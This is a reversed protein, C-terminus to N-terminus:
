RGDETGNLLYTPFKYYTYLVTWIMLARIIVLFYDKPKEVISFGTIKPKKFTETIHIFYYSM